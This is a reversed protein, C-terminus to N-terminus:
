GERKWIRRAIAAVDEDDLFAAYSAIMIYSFMPIVMTVDIALHFLVGAALLWPRARRWWVLVPFTLEFLLTGWTLAGVLPRSELYRPWEAFVPSSLVDRLALGERWRPNALKAFASNLYVYAIQLAVLRQGWLTPAVVHPARPAPAAGARLRLGLPALAALGLQISFLRDGSNLVFPNRLQLSVHLLALILASARAWRGALLTLSALTFLVAHGYLVLESRPAWAFPSLWVFRDGAVVSFPIMGDDAWFRRLNLWVGLTVGLAVLGLTIRLIAAPRGDTPRAFFSLYLREAREARSM